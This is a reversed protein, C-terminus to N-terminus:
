EPPRQGPPHQWETVIKLKVLVQQPTLGNIYFSHGSNMVVQSQGVIDRVVSVHAPQVWIGPELEVM